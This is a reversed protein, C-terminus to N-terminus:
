LTQYKFLLSSTNTAEHNVHSQPNPLCLSPHATTPQHTLPRISSQSPSHILSHIPILLASSDSLHAPSSIFPQTDPHSSPYKLLYFTAIQPFHFTLPTSLITVPLIVGPFVSLRHRTPPHTHPHTSPPFPLLFFPPLISPCVSPRILPLLPPHLSPPISPFVPPYSVPQFSPLSPPPNSPHFPLCISPLSPHQTSPHFPPHCVSPSSSIWEEESMRSDRPSGLLGM